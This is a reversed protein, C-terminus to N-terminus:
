QEESAGEQPATKTAEAPEAPIINGQRLLYEANTDALTIKAGPQYTKGDHELTRCAIYLAQTEPM